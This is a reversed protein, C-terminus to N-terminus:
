RAQISRYITRGAKLGNPRTESCYWKVKNLQFRALWNLFQIVLKCVPPGNVFQDLKCNIQLMYYVKKELKILLNEDM